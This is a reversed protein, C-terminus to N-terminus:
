RTSPHRQINASMCPQGSGAPLLATHMHCTKYTKLMGHVSLYRHWRSAGHARAQHWDVCVAQM